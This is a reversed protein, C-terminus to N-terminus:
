ETEMPDVTTPAPTPRIPQPGATNLLWSYFISVRTYVGYSNESCSADTKSLIGVVTPVDGMVQVLPSGEDYQCPSGLPSITADPVPALTSAAPDNSACIMTALNFENDNVAYSGCPSTATVLNLTVEGYHLNVSELGGDFTSGWGMVVAPLNNDLENYAVFDVNVYDFDIDATLKLLAIDNYKNTSNYQPVPTITYVALTQENPDANIASVQGVVM